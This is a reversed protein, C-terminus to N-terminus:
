FRMQEFLQQNIPFLDKPPEASAPFIHCIARAGRVFVMLAYLTASSSSQIVWFERFKSGLDSMYIPQGRFPAANQCVVKINNIKKQKLTLKTNNGIIDEGINSRALAADTDLMYEGM